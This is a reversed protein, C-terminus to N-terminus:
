ICESLTIKIKFFKLFYAKALFGVAYAIQKMNYKCKSIHLTFFILYPAVTSMINDLEFSRFSIANTRGVNDVVRVTPDM